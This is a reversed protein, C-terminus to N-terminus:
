YILRAISSVFAGFAYIDKGDEIIGPPFDGNMAYWVAAGDAYSVCAPCILEEQEVVEWYYTSYKLISFSSLIRSKSNQDLSMNNATYNEAAKILAIKQTLNGITFVFQLTTNVIQYELSSIKETALLEDFLASSYNGNDILKSEESMFTRYADECTFEFNLNRDKVIAGIVDCINDTNTEQQRIESLMENHAIGVEDFPNNNNSLFKLSPVANKHVNSEEKITNEFLRELDEKATIKNEQDSYSFKTCSSVVVLLAILITKM